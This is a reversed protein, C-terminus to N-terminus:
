CTTSRINRAAVNTIKFYVSIHFAFRAFPVNANVKVDTLFLAVM